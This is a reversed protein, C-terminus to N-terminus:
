QVFEFTEGLLPNFPKTVRDFNSSFTSVAFAAVYKFVLGYHFNISKNIVQMRIHPDDSEDAKDLLYAYQVCEAFRQLMSIPENFIVPM